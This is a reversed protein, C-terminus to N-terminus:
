KVHVRKFKESKQEFMFIEIIASGKFNSGVNKYTILFAFIIDKWM